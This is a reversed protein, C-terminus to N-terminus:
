GEHFWRLRKHLLHLLKRKGETATTQVSWPNLDDKRQQYTFIFAENEQNYVIKLENDGCAFNRVRGIHLDAHSTYPFLGRAYPSEALFGVLDVLPEIRWGPKQALDKYFSRVEDWPLSRPTHQM